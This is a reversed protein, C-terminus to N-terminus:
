IFKCRGPSVTYGFEFASVGFYRKAGHHSKGRIIVKFWMSGQQAPCLMFNSPEGISAADAQYGELACALRGAGKPNKRLSVRLYWMAM